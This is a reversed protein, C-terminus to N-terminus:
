TPVGHVFHKLIFLHRFAYELFRLPSKKATQHSLGGKTYDRKLKEIDELGFLILQLLLPLAFRNLENIYKNKTIM